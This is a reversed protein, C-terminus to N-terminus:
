RLQEWTDDYSNGCSMMATGESACSSLWLLIISELCHLEIVKVMLIAALLWGVCPEVVNLQSLPCMVMVAPLRNRVLFLVLALTFSFVDAATIGAYLLLELDMPANAKKRM